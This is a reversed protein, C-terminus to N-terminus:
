LRYSSLFRQTKFILLLLSRVCMMHTKVCLNFKVQQTPPNSESHLSSFTQFRSRFPQYLLGMQPQGNSICVDGIVNYPDIFDTLEKSVQINVFACDSSIIGRIAERFMESSNCVRDLLAYAADSIVGHSWYYLDESNFDTGLELLPNGIQLICYM